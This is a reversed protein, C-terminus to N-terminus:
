TKYCVMLLELVKHAFKGRLYQLIRYIQKKVTDPRMDLLDAIESYNLGSDFKLFLLERKKDDLTKLANQLLNIQENMLEDPFSDTEASFILDFSTHEDGFGELRKDKKLKKIILRKLSKYLYYELLEANRITPNYKYLDIFLDQICDKLLERDTTIKSGYAFLQGAFENYIEEFSDRDGTKFKYLVLQWYEKNRLGQNM